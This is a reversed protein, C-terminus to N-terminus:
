LLRLEREFDEEMPEPAALYALNAWSSNSAAELFNERISSKNVEKKVEFSWFKIRNHSGESVCKKVSDGWNEGLDQVEPFLWLNQGAQQAIRNGTM